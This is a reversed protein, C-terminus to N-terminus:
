RPPKAQPDATLWLRDIRAGAERPRLQILCLGAPLDLPQAQRAKDLALPQWNWTKGARLHWAPRAPWALGPAAVYLYFSDSQADDASVRGWLYYRGPRAAQITWFVSGDARICGTGPKPQWVYRGGSAAIDPAATMGHLILGAEAEWGVSGGAPLTLPKLPGASKVPELGDLIPRGIERGDLELVASSPEPLLRSQGQGFPPGASVAVPGEQGAVEFRLQEASVQVLPRRAKEFRERWAGFAEDSSLGSAAEVWFVAGPEVSKEAARHEVTLRVVGYSNGDDLLAVEAPKGDSRRAWPVRLGLGATGYRLVVAEGPHVAARRGALDIRRGAIWAGDRPTRLVIHSQLNVVEPGAVDERRYVVLGLADPGRQAAAWFPQM